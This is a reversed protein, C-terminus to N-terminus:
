IGVWNSLGLRSDPTSTISAPVLIKGGPGSAPIPIPISPSPIGMFERSFFLISVWLISTFMIFWHQNTTQFMLKIKGYIPFLWGLQSINKLPTWVVLWYHNMLSKKQIVHNIVSKFLSWHYQNIMGCHFMKKAAEMPNPPKMIEWHKKIEDNVMIDIM